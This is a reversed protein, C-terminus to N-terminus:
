SIILMEKHTHKKELKQEFRFGILTATESDPM